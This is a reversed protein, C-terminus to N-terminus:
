QSPTPNTITGDNCISLWFDHKVRQPHLFSTYDTWKHQYEVLVCEPNNTPKTKGTAKATADDIPCRTTKPYKVKAVAFPLTLVLLTLLLPLRFTNKLM